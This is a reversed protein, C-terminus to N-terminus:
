VVGTNTSDGTLASAIAAVDIQTHLREAFDFGRAISVGKVHAIARGENISAMAYRERMKFKMIDRAPDDWESSTLPEDEILLGLQSRDAFVLDTRGTAPDFPMYPTVVVQFMTPFMSPVNTFTTALQEPESVFQKNNLYSGSFNANGPSGQALQWLPMGHQWGFARAISEQSFIQWAFPHMMLLNYVYGKNIGDAYIYFIDNLTMTGNYAGSADRGTTSKVAGNTNDLVVTGSGLVQAVANEEKLRQMARGMHVVHLRMLDWQSYRIAEESFSSAIGYKGITATIEGALELSQEPYEQGQGIASATMAGFSPFSIHTGNQFSMKQLLPTVVINPEIAEYAIQTLVRPTMLPLDQWFKSDKSYKKAGEDRVKQTFLKDKELLEEVTVRQKRGPVRGNNEIIKRITQVQKADKAAIPCDFGMQKANKTELEEKYDSLRKEVLEEVKLELTEPDM